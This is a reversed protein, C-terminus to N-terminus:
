FYPFVYFYTRKLVSNQIMAQEVSHADRYEGNTVEFLVEIILYLFLM